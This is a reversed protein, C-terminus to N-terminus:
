NKFKKEFITQKTYQIVLQNYYSYKSWMGFSHTKINTADSWMILISCDQQKLPDCRLANQGYAM